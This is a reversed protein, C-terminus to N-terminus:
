NGEFGLHLDGYSGDLCFGQKRLLHLATDSISHRLCELLCLLEHRVEGDVVHPHRPCGGKVRNEPSKESFLYPCITHITKM